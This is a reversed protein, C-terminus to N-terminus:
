SDGSFKKEAVPFIMQSEFQMQRQADLPRGGLPGAAACAAGVLLGVTAIVVKRDPKKM